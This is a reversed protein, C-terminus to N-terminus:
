GRGSQRVALPLGVGSVKEYYGVATCDHAHRCSVANLDANIGGTPVPVSEPRWGGGSRHEAFGITESSGSPQYQGVGECERVTACAVGNMFVLTAAPNPTPEIGWSVGNWREALVSDPSQISGSQGIGICVGSGACWVGGFSSNESSSPNPTPQADWSEGNWRAAFTSTPIPQGAQLIPSYQGVAVCALTTPCSVGSLSTSVAGVAPPVSEITWTTGNWREALPLEQTAFYSGVATCAQSTPCSVGRLSVDAGPAFSDPPSVIRWSIGNWEEAFAIPAGPFPLSTQGVAMCFRPPACSVAFLFSENTGGPSQTPQITWGSPTWQEALPLAADPGLFYEGVAECTRHTPCSVGNLWTSLSGAPNPISQVSWAGAAAVSPCFGSCLAVVM